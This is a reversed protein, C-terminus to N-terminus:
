EVCDCNRVCNKGNDLISIPLRFNCIERRVHWGEALSWVNIYYYLSVDLVQVQIAM